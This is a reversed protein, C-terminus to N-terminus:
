RLPQATAETYRQNLRLPNERQPAQREGEQPPDVPAPIGTGACERDQAPLAGNLLYNDALSDVCENGFAYMGHDGENTVTLLRSGAFARHARIAGEYPTAADNASQVMLMPPVGRGTPRPLNVNPRPWEACPQVVRSWGALPYQRGQRASEATWYARSRNWPTDQCVTAYFTAVFADAAAVPQLGPGAKEATRLLTRAQASLRPAPGGVPTDLIMRFMGLVEALPQFDNKSYMASIIISDLLPGTITVGLNIPERNLDARLREYFQRVAQPTAGLHFRADYRAAWTTFDQRFRREFGLPQWAFSNQWDTTFEANSDLVFRDVRRPFATAYHAGLWTGGSYGVWSIKPWGLVHRLLDLDRVTQGTTVYKLLEGSRYACHRVFVDTAAWILNLNATSRDRPDNSSPMMDGCTLNTSGGTGRVDFGVLEYANAVAARRLLVLPMTLGPAGPGGPNLFLTGRPAGTVPRLRSVAIEITRGPTPRAWDLPARMTACELRESGPPFGEPVKDFCSHWSLQQGAYHAPLNTTPAAGTPAAGTPPAAPAANVPASPALGVAAIALM